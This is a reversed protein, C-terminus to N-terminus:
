PNFIATYVGNTFILNKRQRLVKIVNTSDTNKGVGDSERELASLRQEDRAQAAELNELRMMTRQHNTVLNGTDGSEKVHQLTLGTGLVGASILTVIHKFCNDLTSHHWRRKPPLAAPESKPTLKKM